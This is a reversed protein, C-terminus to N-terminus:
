GKYEIKENYYKLFEDYAEVDKKTINRVKNKEEKSLDNIQEKIYDPPKITNKYDTQLTRNKNLINKNKEYYSVLNEMRVTDTQNIYLGKKKSQSAYDIFKNLKEKDNDLRKLFNNYNEQKLLINNNKGSYNLKDNTVNNEEMNYNQNEIDENSIDEDNIYNNSINEEELQSTREIIKSQNNITHTIEEDEYTGQNIKNIIEQAKDKENQKQTKYNDYNLKLDKGKEGIKDFTNFGTYLEGTYKNNSLTSIIDTRKKYLSFIAVLFMITSVSYTTLASSVTNQMIKAVLAMLIDIFLVLLGLMAKLLYLGILKKFMGIYNHSFSPIISLMLGFPIILIYFLIQVQIIFSFFSIMSFPIMYLMNMIIAVISVLIKHSGAEDSIYYNQKSSDEFDDNNNMENKELYTDITKESKNHEEKLLNEVREKSSLGNNINKINELDLSNFNMIIFPEYVMKEFAKERMLEIGNNENSIGTIDTIKNGSNAIIGQLESSLINSNKIIVGANTIWLIGIGIVIFLNLSERIGKGNRMLYRIGIYLVALLFLLAGLKSFLNSYIRISLDSLVDAISDLAKNDYLYKLFYDTINAFFKAIGFFFNALTNYIDSIAITDIELMYSKYSDINKYKNDINSAYAILITSFFLILTSLIIYIIQKLRM